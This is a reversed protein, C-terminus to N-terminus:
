QVSWCLWSGISQYRNVCCRRTAGAAARGQDPPMTSCYTGSNVLIAFALRRRRPLGSVLGSNAHGRATHKSCCTPAGPDVIRSREPVFWTTREFPPRACDDNDAAPIWWTRGRDPTSWPTNRAQIDEGRWSVGSGKSNIELFGAKGPPQRGSERRCLFAVLNPTRVVV